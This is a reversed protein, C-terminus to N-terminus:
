SSAKPPPLGLRAPRCISASPPPTPTPRPILGPNVHSIKLTGHGTEHGSVECASFATNASVVNLGANNTGGGAASQLSCRPRRPNKIHDDPLGSYFNRFLLTMVPLGFLIHVAIIGPLWSYIGITSTIKVLPYLIV